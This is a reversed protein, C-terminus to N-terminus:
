RTISIRDSTMRSLKELEKANSTMLANITYPRKLAATAFLTEGQPTEIASEIIYGLAILIAASVLAFLLTLRATLSMMWRQTRM